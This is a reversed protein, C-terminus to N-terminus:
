SFPSYRAHKRDQFVAVATLQKLICTILPVAVVHAAIHLHHNTQGVSDLIDVITSINVPIKFGFINEDRSLVDHLNNIESIQAIDVM